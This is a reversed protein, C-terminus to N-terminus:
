VEAVPTGEQPPGNGKVLTEPREPLFLRSNAWFGPPRGVM